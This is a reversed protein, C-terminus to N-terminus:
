RILFSEIFHFLFFCHSLISIVHNTSQLFIIFPIAANQKNSSVNHPTSSIERRSPSPEIDSYLVSFTSIIKGKRKKKIEFM